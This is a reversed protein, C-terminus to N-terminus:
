EEWWSSLCLRGPRTEDRYKVAGVTLLLFIRSSPLRSCIVALWLIACQQRPVQYQTGRTGRHRETHTLLERERERETGTGGVVQCTDEGERIRSM